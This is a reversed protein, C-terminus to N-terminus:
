IRNIKKSNIGLSYKCLTSISCLASFGAEQRVLSNRKMFITARPLISM